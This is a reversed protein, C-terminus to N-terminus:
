TDSVSLMHQLKAINKLHLLAIRCINDIDSDFSLNSDFM